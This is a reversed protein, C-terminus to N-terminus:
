AKRPAAPKEVVSIGPTARLRFCAGWAGSGSLKWRVLNTFRAAGGESSIVVMTSTQATFSTVETWPGEATPASELYLTASSLYPIEVKLHYTSVTEGRLWQSSPPIVDMASAGEITILPQFKIATGGAALFAAAGPAGAGLTRQVSLPCSGGSCAGTAGLQNQSQNNKPGLTSEM